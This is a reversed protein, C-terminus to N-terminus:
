KNFLSKVVALVTAAISNSRVSCVIDVTNSVDGNVTAIEENYAALKKEYASIASSVGEVGEDLGDVYMGCNVLARYVQAKRTSTSLTKTYGIFMASDEEIKQLKAEYIEFQAIAAQTEPADVNMNYYYKEIAEDYLPKLENYTVYSSMKNVTGIFAKTNAELVAVFDERYIDLEKKYVDLLYLYYKGTESTMDVNNIEIYNEVYKCIGARGIYSETLPYKDFQEKIVAYHAEMLLDYFPKNLVNYLALADSVGEYEPDYNNTDVIGRIVLVYTNVFDINEQNALAAVKIAEYNGYNPEDVVTRIFGVCDLMKQSNERKITNVIYLPMYENYYKYLTKYEEPVEALFAIVAPDAEASELNDAIEFSCAEYYSKANDYYKQMAVSTTARDFLKLAQLLNNLNDIREASAGLYKIEANANKFRDSTQDIYIQNREIYSQISNLITQQGALNASNIGKNKVTEILGEIYSLYADQALARLEKEDIASLKQTYSSPVEDSISAILEKAKNYAYLRDKIPNSENCAYDVFEMFNDNAEAQSYKNMIRYSTGSYVKLNDYYIQWTDATENFRIKQFLCTDEGYTSNIARLPRTGLSVHNVYLEQVNNEVDVVCAIHMWQGPVAYIPEDIGKQYNSYDDERFNEYEGSTVNDSGFNLKNNSFSVVFTTLSAAAGKNDKLSDAPNVLKVVFDLRDESMIEFEFVLSGTNTPVNVDKYRSLGRTYQGEHFVMVCNDGGKNVIASDKAWAPYVTKTNEFDYNVDVPTKADNKLYGLEYESLPAKSDAIYMQEEEIDSRLAVIEKIADIDAYTNVTSFTTLSVYNVVDVMAALMDEVTVDKTKVIGYYAELVPYFGGLTGVSSEGSIPNPTIEDAIAFKAKFKDVLYSPFSNDVIFNKLADIANQRENVDKTAEDDKVEDVKSLILEFAKEAAEVSVIAALASENYQSNFLKTNMTALQDIAYMQRIPALAGDANNYNLLAGEAYAIRLADLKTALAADIVSAKRLREEVFDINRYDFDAFVAAHEQTLTKVYIALIEARATNYNDVMVQPSASGALSDIFDYLLQLMAVKETVETVYEISKNNSETVAVEAALLGEILDSYNLQGFDYAKGVIARYADKYVDNLIERNNDITSENTVVLAQKNECETKKQALTAAEPNFVKQKETILQKKDDVEKQKAAIASTNKQEAKNLEELESELTALEENLKDLEGQLKAVKPELTAIESKLVEIEAKLTRIDDYLKCIEGYMADISDKNTIILMKDEALGSNKEFIVLFDTEFNAPAKYECEAVSNTVKDRNTNFGDLGDKAEDFKQNYFDVLDQSLEVARLYNGVSVLANYKQEATGALEAALALVLNESAATYSAVFEAHRSDIETIGKIQTQDFEALKDYLAKFAVMKDALQETANYDQILGALVDYAIVIAPATDTEADYETAELRAVFPAYEVAYEAAYLSFVEIASVSFPAVSLLEYAENVAAVRLALNGAEDNKPEGDGPYATADFSAIIIAELDAAATNYAEVYRVYAADFVDHEATRYTYVTKFCNKYESYLSQKNDSNSNAFADKAVGLAAVAADIEFYISDFKLAEAKEADDVVLEDVKSNYMDVGSKSLPYTEFYARWSELEAVEDVSELVAFAFLERAADYNEVFDLFGEAEPDVAVSSLFSSMFEMESKLAAFAPAIEAEAELMDAEAASKIIGTSTVKAEANNKLAEAEGKEGEPAAEYIECAQEYDACASDYNDCATKYSQCAMLYESYVAEYKECAAEVGKFSYNLAGVTVTAAPKEVPVYVPMEGSCIDLIAKCDALVTNRVRNYETVMYDSCPYDKLYACWASLDEIKKDATSDFEEIRKVVVTVYKTVAANYRAIKDAYGVADPSIPNKALYEATARAKAGVGNNNAFALNKLSAANYKFGTANVRKEFVALLEEFEALDDVYAPNSIDELKVDDGLLNSINAFEDILAKRLGNYKNVVIVSIPAPAKAETEPTEANEEVGALTPYISNLVAIKADLDAAANVADEIKKALQSAREDYETIFELYGDTMPNVPNAVLSAYVAALKALLVDYSDADTVEALLASPAELTGTYVGNASPSFTIKPFEEFQKVLELALIYSYYSNAASPDFANDAMAALVEISKSHLKAEFEAYGDHTSLNNSEVYEYVAVLAEAKEENTKARSSKVSYDTNHFPVEADVEDLLKQAEALTAVPGTEEAVALIAVSSVIMAVLTLLILIKKMTKM